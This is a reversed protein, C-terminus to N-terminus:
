SLKTGGTLQGEWDPKRTMICDMEIACLRDIDRNVTIFDVAEFGAAQFKTLSEAFGCMGDYIAHLSVETQLALIRPMINRAGEMVSLDFGQTDLKLYLRPSSIDVLCEDLVRDLRRVDVGERREVRNTQFRIESEKRPSLFSSFLTEETVNIERRENEAGLAYPFVRWRESKAAVAKLAAYSAGVPEFSIIWGKYGSRRLLTGYQGQNAGVDLVCNISLSELVYRLVIRNRFWHAWELPIHPLLKYALTRLFEKSMEINDRRVFLFIKGAGLM